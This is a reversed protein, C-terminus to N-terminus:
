TMCYLILIQLVSVAIEVISTHMKFITELNYHDSPPKMDPSLVDFM